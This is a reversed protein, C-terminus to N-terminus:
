KRRGKRKAMIEEKEERKWKRRVAAKQGSAGHATKLWFTRKEGRFKEERGRRRRREEVGPELIGFRGLVGGFDAGGPVSAGRTRRGGRKPNLVCSKPVTAAPGRRRSAAAGGARLRGEKWRRVAM